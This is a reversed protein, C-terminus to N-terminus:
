KVISVPQSLDEEEITITHAFLGWPGKVKYLIDFVVYRIVSQASPYANKPGTIM